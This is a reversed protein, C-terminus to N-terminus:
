SGITLGFGSANVREVLWNETCRSRSYGGQDAEGDCEKVTVCDDDNFIECDHIHVNRGAIDFGDTNFATIDELTHKSPDRGDRHVNVSSYRIVVGDVNKIETTWYPPQIFNIYEILIRTSNYIELIRPRDEQHILYKIAGWWKEGGM